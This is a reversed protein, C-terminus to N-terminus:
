FRLLRNVKVVFARNKLDPYGPRLTDREDTYVIFLESGARYEWRFRLNSSFLRDASAYQLLASIFMRPNFGYDSRTRLVQTTFRGYPLEVRSISINPEVSWQDTVSFRASSFGVTTITGDYFHGLQLTATGSLRRHQGLAYRLQTDSFAYGGIPITVTPAVRFPALLMEYNRAGEVSFQDSNELEVNFRGYHQRSEVLGSGTEIYEVNGEWTVQRIWDISRPRPSFRASAFSRNFDRRPLFGVEPNFHNGVHLFEAQAGYRDGAYNFKGHYSLDDDRLGPTNTRALFAGFNLNEFFSFSSDVGYAQNSGSAVTSESRNTYVAGVSSRRLIDRKLRVVSFNTGPTGSVREDGTQINLLGIGFDGVKGTVRGGVDIPIVRNANLGIRRSYFLTPTLSTTNVGTGGGGGVGSGGRGFDFVGRGELFFERKEPFFLSFRTLNVQQEDVEVQAFDTNYTLDATLNATIGYKADIGFDADVDDSVVPTAIRDTTLRSIGYPKIEVNRGAPPLDLGTLTAAASVRFFGQPGGSSLPLPTLYSYENKRRISRRVQLGWSQNSGSRYRLSKFPIAMEVTWGGEFRGTRVEWVPNWDGNPNGEDTVQYDALAGLPNTYFMYGNRRDLFTDFVVGFNDNQRLQNTDRRVENATWEDPPASEWMRGTVYITTADFLVWAETRETPVGNEVPLTQVFVDIAPNSLYVEEDLRGDVRLPAALRVARVTIRGDADRGVIPVPEAPATQAAGAAAGLAWALILFRAARAPSGM